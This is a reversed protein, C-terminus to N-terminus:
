APDFIAEGVEEVLHVQPDLVALPVGVGVHPKQLPIVARQEVEARLDGEEVEVPRLLPRESRLASFLLPRGYRARRDGMRSQSIPAGPPVVSSSLLLLRRRSEFGRTPSQLGGGSGSPWTALFASSGSPGGQTAEKSALSIRRAPGRERAKWDGPQHTRHLPAGCGPKRQSLASSRVVDNLAPAVPLGGFPKDRGCNAGASAGSDLRIAPRAVPRLRLIAEDREIM